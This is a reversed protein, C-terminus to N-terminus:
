LGLLEAINLYIIRARDAGSIRAYLIPALQRIPDQFPMDTAFLIKRVDTGAVLEEVMGFYEQPLCLDLYVNPYRNALDMAGPLGLDYACHGLIMPASPYEQVLAELAELTDHGKQTHMMVPISHEAAYEWMPRYNPGDIPYDHWFPHAKIVRMGWEECCRRLEPLVLHPYRPNVTALGIIRHPYRRMADIHVDNGLVPDSSVAMHASPFAMDIGVADMAGIMCDIDTCPIALNNAPGIHCHSDIIPVPLPEGRELYPLLADFEYDQARVPKAM